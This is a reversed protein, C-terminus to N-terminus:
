REILGLIMEAKSTTDKDGPIWYIPVGRKEMRRFWTMQRKAFQHIATNLLSIMRDYTYVGSLYDTVYRYELGYYRLKEEPIGKELLQRVEEVLGQELRTHLRHTIRERLVDRPFDIGAVFNTDFGESMSDNDAKGMEIMIAKILRDKSVTDTTNHPKRYGALIEALEEHSKRILEKKINHDQLQEQLRYGSIVADLYMGSGGCMIPHKGRSRIERFCKTFDNVFRFLDYTEGADAIDILHYPINKGEVSYESLDKGTGINMERYVQRSDASIVEGDLIYALRAAVATKGVATPGLITILDYSKTM